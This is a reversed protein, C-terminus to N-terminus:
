TFADPHRAVRIGKLLTEIAYGSLMQIVFGFDKPAVGSRGPPTEITMDEVFLRGITEACAKVIEASVLWAEPSSARKEWASVVGADPPSDSRKKRRVRAM